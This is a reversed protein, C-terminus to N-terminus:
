TKSYAGLITANNQSATLYFIPPGPLDHLILGKVTNDPRQNKKVRQSRNDKMIHVFVEMHQLWQSMIQEVLTEGIHQVSVM